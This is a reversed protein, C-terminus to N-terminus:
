YNIRFNNLEGMIQNFLVIDNNAIKQVLNNMHSGNSSIKRLNKDKPMYLSLLLAVILGILM